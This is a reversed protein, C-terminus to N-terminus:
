RILHRFDIHVPRKLVGDVYVLLEDGSDHAYDVVTQGGAAVTDARGFFIPAGIEGVAKGDPGRLSAASALVIWGDETNTYEGIRYKLGDTSDFTIQIPGDFNGGEDFIKALLEGVTNEGLEAANLYRVVSEFETNINTSSGYNQPYQQRLRAM